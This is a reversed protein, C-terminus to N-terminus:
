NKSAEEIHDLDGLWMDTASTALMTELEAKLGEQEKLLEEKKERTLNYIPMKILYDYSGDKKAFGGDDLYSEIESKKTNMVNLRGEIVDLVFRVKSDLLAISREMQAIIHDRRKTYCAQRVGVFDALIDNATAYKKIVGHEDFAHMNTTQMGKNSVMKFDDEFKCSAGGGASSEYPALLSDLAAKSAFMLVFRVETDTYHSEYDKLGKGNEQEILKELHEKFDDTWVQVPLETVEVKTDGVRRYVGKSVYSGNATKVISGKFGRYWPALEPLEEVPTGAIHLRLNAIVDAPNFCPISTSYGTGIGSAGNVLLMPIVPVYYRPEIPYGDDTLYELCSGDDAHYLKFVLPNLYTFIYRPSASDKGGMIRTGFQGSPVLMNINNSGVFNQALGVIAEQLSAEGHHYCANESVYGALQAVKIEKTLNRKWCSFMIKRITRKMGDVVSPISRELNYVSFHILESNVFEAYDVKCKKPDICISRDYSGIWRKRDDSRSKNFALDIMQDSNSGDYVYDIQKFEKFVDRAEQATSTGLGKYYKQDYGKGENTLEKWAEYEPLNYFSQTKGGKSVKVIPTLMTCIFGDMQFLSTWMTQFVNFLLGKIHNGDVDADTMILIKGYRLEKVSDYKKGSELGLIKKLDSIEANKAIKDAACDKVNLVKGRLPFIGFRERGVVALGATCFTAASDGECLILTTQSSKATGAWLADQLKSIGRIASRKKGDTSKLSKDDTASSLRLVSDVIRNNKYLKEIFKDDITCKSGFKTMPTTLREKSQSDFSPNVITSKVCLFLNDRVHNQKLNKVKRRKAIMDTLKKTIQTTVHDVHKGGYMTKIGNVFSVQEFEDVPSAAAVVEWRDSKHVARPNEGKDGLYLDAYREFDKFSLQVDNLYVKVNTPTCACMDYVRTVMMDYMDQTLTPMGFREYDPTFTIRTYPYKACASVVPTSKESMNDRFEQRYLKRRTHDVTEIKFLSSYINTAKSGVGNVGGITREVTDDYNTSSLLNGFVLEPIYVGHEEHKFVDVGNGNNYVSIEGTDMSISVRMEKVDKVNGGAEKLDQLRVIHDLANVVIEDFIKLLGPVYTIDKRAMSASDADYVWCTIKEHEVSGIYMNPRLLVHERQNVKRYNATPSM